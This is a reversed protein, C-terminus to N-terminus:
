NPMWNGHAGFPVRQPLDIRAVTPADFEHADLINLSTVGSPDDHSLVLLWGEDEAADASAPAFVPEFVRTGEPGLNRVISTGQELDYKYISRGFMPTDSVELQAVYGYRNYLGTRRDDIRPFDGTRDDLQREDVHGTALDITWQWLTSQDGALDDFGGAMIAGARCVQIVVSNGVEYSNLAHFVTGPEVEFWRVDANSGERPMVGVRAGASPDFKFGGHEMAFVIPLDFFIAYHETITFDHMMVPRPIDIVESQVLRGDASVRHYTLYPATLFQYGFFLLEGTVPCLKPHATMPTALKGDYDFSGVTSLDPNIEWAVHAEELALLKGAHKIINTNAPSSRLDSMATILDMDHELYPTRVYRNRYNIAGDAIEFGHVMGAGFFWHFPVAGPPNFGNRLYSGNLAAPIEGVVTLNEATVEHEIPAYNNQMWWVDSANPAQPSKLDLENAAMTAGPRM